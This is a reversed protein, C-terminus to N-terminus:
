RSLVVFHARRNKAWAEETHGADFPREKGFSITELRSGDIGLSVLYSRASAARREGLGLNYESTGREDCHGEIKVRVGPNAKLQGADGALIAKADARLSYDDFDFFADALVAEAPAPAPAPAAVPAPAPRPPTVPAVTEAPMAEARPQVAPKEAPAAPVPAAPAEPAAAEPAAAKPTACGGLAIAIALASLILTSKWLNSHM